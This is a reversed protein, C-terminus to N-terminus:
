RGGDQETEASISNQETVVVTQMDQKVVDM